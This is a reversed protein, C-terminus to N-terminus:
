PPRPQRALNPPVGSLGEFAPLRRFRPRPPCNIHDVPPSPLTGALSAPSPPSPPRGTPAFLSGALGTHAPSQHGRRLPIATVCIDAYSGVAISSQCLTRTSSPPAPPSGTPLGSPGDPISPPLRAPPHSSSPRLPFTACMPGAPSPTSTKFAPSPRSREPFATPSPPQTPRGASALLARSSQRAPTTPPPSPPGAPASSSPCSWHKRTCILGATPSIGGTETAAPRGPERRRACVRAPQASATM